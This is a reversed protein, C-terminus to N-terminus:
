LFELDKKDPVSTKPFLLQKLGFLSFGIIVGKLIDLYNEKWATM